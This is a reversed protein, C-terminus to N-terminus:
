KCSILISKKLVIYTYIRELNEKQQRSKIYVCVHIQSRASFIPMTQTNNKVKAIGIRVM